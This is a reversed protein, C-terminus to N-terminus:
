VEYRGNTRGTFRRRTEVLAPGEGASVSTIERLARTGGTLADGSGVRTFAPTTTCPDFQVRNYFTADLKDTFAVQLNHQSTSYQIEALWAHNTYFVPYSGTRSLEGFSFGVAWDNASLRRENAAVTDDTPHDGLNVLLVTADAIEFLSSVSAAAPSDDIETASRRYTSAWYKRAGLTTPSTFGSVRVLRWILPSQTSGIPSEQAGTTPSVGNPTFNFGGRRLGLLVGQIANRDSRTLGFLEDDNM